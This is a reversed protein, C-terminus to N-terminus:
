NQSPFIGELAIIFNLTLYPQRNEHPQSSGAAAISEGNLPTYNAAQAFYPAGGSPVAAIANGGPSASSAPKGSAVMAHKHAPLEALTLTHVDEGGPVGIPYTSSRHM